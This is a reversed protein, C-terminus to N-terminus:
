LTVSFHFGAGKAVNGPSDINSLVVDCYSANQNYVHAVYIASFCNAPTLQVAYEYTPLPPNFVIRIRGNGIHSSSCVQGGRGKIWQLHGTARAEGVLIPTTSNDFSGDVYGPVIELQNAANLQLSVNDYRVNVKDGITDIGDGPKVDLGTSTSTLGDGPTITIRNSSDFTLGSGLNVNIKNSSISCGNGSQIQLRNNSDVTVGNGTRVNILNSDISCATGSRIQIRNSSDLTIGNGHIVNIRDNVIQTSVGSLIQLRNDSDITIGDGNRVNIVNADISSANGTQIQLRNSGDVTIGNGNRVNITNSNIACANGTRIQIRNSGDITIGNGYRVNVKDGSTDLSVGPNVQLGNLPSTYVLGNGPSIAIKNNSDVYAGNGVRVNVKDGTVDSAIGPIVDFRLTDGVQLPRGGGSLAAGAIVEDIIQVKEMDWKNKNGNFYLIVWDQIKSADVNGINEITHDVNKWEQTRSEYRIIQTDKAATVEVNDIDGISKVVPKGANWNRTTSSYNLTDGDSPSNANVDAIESVRISKMYGQVAHNGWTWAENWKSIDGGGISHAPHQTFVPDQEIFDEILLYESTDPPTYDIRYGSVAIKGVRNLPEPSLNLASLSIAPAAEWLRTATSWSLTDNNNPNPYDTSTSVNDSNSLPGKTDAPYFNFIGLRADYDLRGGLANPDIPQNTVSLDTLRLHSDDENDNIWRSGNWRLIQGSSPSTIVVDQLERLLTREASTQALDDILITKSTTIGTSPDDDNVILYDGDTLSQVAPLESVKVVDFITTTAM